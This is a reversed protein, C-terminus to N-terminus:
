IKRGNGIIEWKSNESGKMKQLTSFILSLQSSQKLLSIMVNRKEYKAYIFQM